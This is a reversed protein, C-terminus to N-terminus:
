QSHGPNRSLGWSAATLNLPLSNGVSVRRGRWRPLLSETWDGVPGTLMQSTAEQVVALSQLDAEQEM